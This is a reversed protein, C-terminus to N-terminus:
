PGVARKRDAAMAQYLRESKDGSVALEGQEHGFLGFPLVTRHHGHGDFLLGVGTQFRQSVAQLPDVQPLNFFGQGKESLFAHFLGDHHPLDPVVLEVAPESQVRGGNFQEGGQAVFFRVRNQARHRVNKGLGTDAKKRGGGIQLIQERRLAYQRRGFRVSIDLFVDRESKLGGLRDGSQVQSLRDAHFVFGHDGHLGHFPGVGANAARPVDAAAPKRDDFHRFRFLVQPEVNRDDSLLRHLGHFVGLRGSEGHFRSFRQEKVLFFKQRVGVPGAQDNDPDVWAGFSVM